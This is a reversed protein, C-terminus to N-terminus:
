HDKAVLIALLLLSIPAGALLLYPSCILGLVMLAGMDFSGIHCLEVCKLCWTSCHTRYVLHALAWLGIPIVTPVTAAFYRLFKRVNM